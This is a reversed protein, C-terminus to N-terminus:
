KTDRDTQQGTFARNTEESRRALEQIKELLRATENARTATQDSQDTLDRRQQKLSKAIADLEAM